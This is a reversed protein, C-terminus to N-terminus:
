LAGTLVATAQAKHGRDYSNLWQVAAEHPITQCVCGQVSVRPGGDRVDPDTKRKKTGIGIRQLVM